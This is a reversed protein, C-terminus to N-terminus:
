MKSNDREKFLESTSNYLRQEFKKVIEAAVREEFSVEKITRIKQNVFMPGNYHILWHLSVSPYKAALDKILKLSPQTNFKKLRNLKESSKYKLGNLAFDNISKYGLELSLESILLYYNIPQFNKCEKNTTM